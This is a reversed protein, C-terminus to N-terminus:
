RWCGTSAAPSRTGNQNITLTRCDAKDKLQGGSATAKATYTTDTIDELSLTYFGSQTTTPVGLGAPPDDDLEDNTAYRNKQLFFKEQAAQIRLLAMRAETRNTRILYGRYTSVSVSALIAVIVIVTMLEILTIGQLHKPPKM